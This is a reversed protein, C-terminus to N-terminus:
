SKMKKDKINYETIAMTMVLSHKLKLVNFCGLSVYITYWHTYYHSKSMDKSESVWKERRKRGLVQYDFPFFMRDWACRSCTIPSNRLVGYAQLSLHSVKSSNLSKVRGSSFVFNELLSKKHLKCIPYFSSSFNPMLFLKSLCFTICHSVLVVLSKFGQQM